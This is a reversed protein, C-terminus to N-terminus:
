SEVITIKQKFYIFENVNLANINNYLSLIPASSSIVSSTSISFSSSFLCSFSAWARAVMRSITPSKGEASMAGGSFTKNTHLNFGTVLSSSKCIM